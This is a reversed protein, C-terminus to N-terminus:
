KGSSSPLLCLLALHSQLCPVLVAPVTRCAANTYCILPEEYAVGYRSTTILTCDDCMLQADSASFYSWPRVSTVILEQQNWISEWQRVWKLSM